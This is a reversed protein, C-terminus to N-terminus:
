SGTFLQGRSEAAPLLPPRLLVTRATASLLSSCRSCALSISNRPRALEMGQTPAPAASTPPMRQAVREASQHFRIALVDLRNLLKQAMGIVFHRRVGIRLGDSGGFTRESWVRSFSRVLSFLPPRVPNSDLKKKIFGESGEAASPGL